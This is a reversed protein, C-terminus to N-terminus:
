HPPGNRVKCVQKVPTQREMAGVQIWYRTITCGDATITIQFEYEYYTGDRRVLSNRLRFSNGKITVQAKYRLRDGDPTPFIGSASRRGPEIVAGAANDEYVFIRGEDSFYVIHNFSGRVCPNFDGSGFCIETIVGVEARKGLMVNPTQSGAPSVFAM